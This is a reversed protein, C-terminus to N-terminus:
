SAPELLEHYMYGVYGVKHWTGGEVTEFVPLVIDSPVVAVEDFDTGPGARVKARTITIYEQRPGSFLDQYQKADAQLKELAARAELTRSTLVDFELRTAQLQKTVEELSGVAAERAQYKESLAALEASVDGLEAKLKQLAAEHTRRQAALEAQLEDSGLMARLALGWGAMAAIVFIGIILGRIM